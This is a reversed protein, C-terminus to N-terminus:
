VAQLQQRADLVPESVTYVLPPQSTISVRVPKLQSEQTELRVTIELRNETRRSCAGPRVAGVAEVEECRRGSGPADGLSYLPEAEFRRQQRLRGILRADATLRTGAQGVVRLSDHFLHRITRQFSMPIHRPGVEQTGQCGDNGRCPDDEQIEADVLSAEPRDELSM